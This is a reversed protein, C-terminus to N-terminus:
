FVLNEALVATLVEFVATAKTNQSTMKYTITFPIATQIRHPPCLGIYLGVRICNQLFTSSM